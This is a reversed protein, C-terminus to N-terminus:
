PCSTPLATANRSPLLPSTMSARTSSAWSSFLVTTIAVWSGVTIAAQSALSSSHFQDDFRDPRRRGLRHRRDDCGKDDTPHARRDQRGGALGHLRFSAHETLDVGGTGSRHDDGVGLAVGPDGSIGDVSDAPQRADFPHHTQARGEIHARHGVGTGSRDRNPRHM